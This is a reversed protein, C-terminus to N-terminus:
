RELMTCKKTLCLTMQELNAITNKTSRPVLNPQAKQSFISTWKMNVMSPMIIKRQPKERKRLQKPAYPTSTSAMKRQIIKFYHFIGTKFMRMIETKVTTELIETSNRFAMKFMIQLVKTSKNAM